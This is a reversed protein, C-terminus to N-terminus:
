NLSRLVSCSTFKTSSVTVDFQVSNTDSISTVTSRLPVKFTVEIKKVKAKTLADNRQTEKLRARIERLIVPFAKREDSSPLAFAREGPELISGITYKLCSTPWRKEALLREADDADLSIPLDIRTIRAPGCSHVTLQHLQPFIDGTVLQEQLSTSEALIPGEVAVHPTYKAIERLLCGAFSAPDINNCFFDYDAGSLHLTTHCALVPLTENFLRKSALTFSAFYAPRLINIRDGKRKFLYTAPDTHSTYTLRLSTNQEFSDTDHLSSTFVEHYITNRLEAPLDFFGLPKDLRSTPDPHDCRTKSDFNAFGAITSTRKM